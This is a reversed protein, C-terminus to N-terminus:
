KNLWDLRGDAIQNVGGIRLTALFLTVTDHYLLLVTFTM